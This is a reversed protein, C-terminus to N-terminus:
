PATLYIGYTRFGQITPESECKNMKIPSNQVQGWESSTAKFNYFFDVYGRM